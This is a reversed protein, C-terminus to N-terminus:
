LSADLSVFLKEIRAVSEVCHRTSQDLNVIKLNVGWTFFCKQLICRNLYVAPTKAIPLRTSQSMKKTESMIESRRMTEICISRLNRKQRNEGFFELDCQLGLHGELDSGTTGSTSYKSEGPDIYRNM